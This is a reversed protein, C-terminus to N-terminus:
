LQLRKNLFANIVQHPIIETGPETRPLETVKFAQGAKQCNRIYWALRYPRFADKSGSHIKIHNPFGKESHWRLRMKKLEFPNTNDAAEVSVLTQTKADFTLLTITKRHIQDLPSIDTLSLTIKNSQLTNEAKAQLDQSACQSPKFNRKVIHLLKQADLNLPELALTKTKANVLIKSIFQMDRASLNESVETDIQPQVAFTQKKFRKRVIWNADAKSVITLERESSTSDTCSLYTTINILGGDLEIEKTLILPGDKYASHSCLIPAGTLQFSGKLFVVVLIIFIFLGIFKLM